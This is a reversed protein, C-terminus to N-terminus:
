RGLVGAPDWVASAPSRGGAALRAWRCLAGALTRLLGSAGRGDASGRGGDAAPRPPSGELARVARSEGWGAGRLVPQHYRLLGPHARHVLRAAAPVASRRDGGQDGGALAYGPLPPATGAGGHRPPPCRAALAGRGPGLGVRVPSAPRHPLRRARGPVRLPAGATPRDPPAALGGDAVAPRLGPRSGAPTRGWSGAAGPSAGRDGTGPRRVTGPLPAARRHGGHGGASRSSGPHGPRAACHAARPPPKRRDALLPLTGLAQHPRVYPAESYVGCIYYDMGSTDLFIKTTLTMNQCRM